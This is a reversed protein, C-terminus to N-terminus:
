HRPAVLGKVQLHISYVKDSATIFLTQHDAGGFTVNGVKEPISLTALHDGKPSFIWVGGPGASYLNGSVDVAMGDPNGKQPASSADYFVSGKGLTGDAKVPYRMWFRNPESNSVYLYHEDPSFVIGNPRPLEDTLLQLPEAQPSSDATISTAHPLRYVGNVALSKEPDQDSQTPLGYPPDTFYLSGDSRYTLDNPSNLKKGKFSDALVTIPGRINNDDIRYVQRRAHGAITLRGESDVTMGNSGPEPGTFPTTGQYGTGGKYLSTNGDDPNYVYLKNAPVDSFLLQGNYWVPGETWTYGSTLM